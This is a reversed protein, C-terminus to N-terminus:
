FVFEHADTTTLIANGTEGSAQLALGQVRISAGPLAVPMPVSLVLPVTLDPAGLLTAFSGVQVEPWLPSPPLPTATPYVDVLLWAPAQEFVGNMSRLRLYVQTGQRVANRYCANAVAADTASELLLHDGSGPFRRIAPAACRDALGALLHWEVEGVGQTALLTALPGPPQFSPDIACVPQQYIATYICMAAALQMAPSPHFLDAEYWQPDWELLAVADGVAANVASGAGYMAEIGSVALRYNGRIEDHMAMPTPWPSPYYFQGWASAWTQFMVAQANPSHARVNAMIALSGSFFDAVQFGVGNTAGLAHEQMVVADWSQGAPLSGTIAGTHFPDSAYQQLTGGGSYSGVWNPAPHGAEVAILEFVEPVGYGWVYYTYSNGYFLVNKGQAAAAVALLSAWLAILQGRM